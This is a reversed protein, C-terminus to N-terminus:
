LLVKQPDRDARMAFISEAPVAVLLCERVLAFSTRSENFIVRGAMQRSFLQSPQGM